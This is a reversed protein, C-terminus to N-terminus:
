WTQANRGAIPRNATNKGFSGPVARQRQGSYSAVNESGRLALIQPPRKHRNSSMKRPSSLSLAHGALEDAWAIM